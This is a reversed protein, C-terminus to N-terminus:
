GNSRSVELRWRQVPDMATRLWAALINLSLATLTIALGPWFSLWWATSLYDQGEAVMLGWTVEPPQIGLGLFSLSSESLMVAAFDLTALTILTPVALPAIHRWLLRHRSAGLACAATVFMRERIELVEARSTRLFLPVRTIALIIIVNLVSSGLVYLVVLALLLSPFSMVTDAIRMIVTSIWGGRFGAIMGLLGGLVLSLLVASGAILMTNQSGVILRALISRGLADAGLVSLWGADMSFPALNRARLNMRGAQDGLLAPGFLACFLVVLLFIFSALAFKDRWLMSLMQVFASREPRGDSLRIDLSSSM